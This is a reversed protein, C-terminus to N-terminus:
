KSPEPWLLLISLSAFAFTTADTPPATNTWNRAASATKDRDIQFFRNFEDKEELAVWAFLYRRLSNFLNQGGFLRLLKQRQKERWGEEIGKSFWVGTPHKWSKMTTLERQPDKCMNLQEHARHRITKPRRDTSLATPCATRAQSWRWAASLACRRCRSGPWGRPCRSGWPVTACVVRCVPNNTTLGVPIIRSM